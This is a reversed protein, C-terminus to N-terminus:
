GHRRIKQMQERHMQAEMDQKDKFYCCINLAEIVNMDLFYQWKDARSNTLNDLLTWWGWRKSFNTGEERSENRGDDGESDEGSGDGYDAPGAYVGGSDM